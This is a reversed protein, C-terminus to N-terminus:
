IKQCHGTIGSSFLTGYKLYKLSLFHSILIKYGAFSVEEYSPCFSNDDVPLFEPCLASGRRVM